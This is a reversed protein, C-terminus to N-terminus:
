VEVVTKRFKPSLVAVSGVVCLTAVGGIVVSPVLGFFRAALGSEFAGIENSSIIFMSNISSVRGRMNDPTLMQMLTGRMVVSVSDFMGSLALLAMSLAFSTSLGFGVICVGFGAVAWMLRQASLKKMPMLALTLAMGVAGLAPAARLAGLGESGVHLVQDAYAPLMATAGGLLVAFMDLAMVSLLVPHKLIFKWGAIISKAAPERLEAAKQEHPIKMGAIAIIALTGLTLPMMWAGHAGYGGYLIGALAPGAINAIQFASSLWATATPLNQRSVVRILIIFASPVIFSRVLGSLFVGGYIWYLLTGFPVDIYGGAFTFLVAINLVLFGVCTKLIVSPNGNDVVHGAFLAGFIAPVAECLGTLGLLFPSKTLDYIQWGVILAQAQLAMVILTRMLLLLRFNHVRLIELSLKQKM